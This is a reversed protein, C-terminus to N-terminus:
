KKIKCEVNGDVVSCISFLKDCAAISAKEQPQGARLHFYLPRLCLLIDEPELDFYKAFLFRRRSNRVEYSKVGDELRDDELIDDELRGDELIDDELRDDENEWDNRDPLNRAASLALSAFIFILSLTSKMRIISIHM